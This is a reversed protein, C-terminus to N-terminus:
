VPPRVRRGRVADAGGLRELVAALLRGAGAVADPGLAEALEADLARRHGRAAAIAATGRDTLHLLRARADTPSPRRILLGRRELDAAAKSAAQQTVGMRHALETIALPGALVHQFLVGDAFRLDDFGDDALRRQIEASMAWGAIVSIESLALTEPTPDVVM